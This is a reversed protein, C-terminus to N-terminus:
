TDPISNLFVKVCLEYIEKGVGYTQQQSREEKDWAFYLHSTEGIVQPKASFYLPKPM